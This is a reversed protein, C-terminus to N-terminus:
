PVSTIMKITHIPAYQIRKQTGKSTQKSDSHKQFIRGYGLHLKKASAGPHKELIEQHKMCYTWLAMCVLQIELFRLFYFMDM